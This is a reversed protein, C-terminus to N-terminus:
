RAVLFHRVGPGALAADAEFADEPDLEIADYGNGNAAQGAGRGVGSGNAATGTAGRGM